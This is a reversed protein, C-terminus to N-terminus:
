CAAGPPGDIYWEGKAVSPDREARKAIRQEAAKLTAHKRRTRNKGIKGTWYVPKKM